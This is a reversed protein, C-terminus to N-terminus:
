MLMHWVPFLSAAKDLPKLGTYFTLWRVISRARRGEQLLCNCKELKEKLMECPTDATVSAALLQLSAARFRIHSKAAASPSPVYRIWTMRDDSNQQLVAESPRKSKNNWNDLATLDRHDCLGELAESSPILRLDSLETRLEGLHQSDHDVFTM